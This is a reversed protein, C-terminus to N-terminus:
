RLRSSRELHEIRGGEYKIPEKGRWELQLTMREIHGLLSMPTARLQPDRISLDVNLNQISTDRGIRILPRSDITATQVNRLNLGEIIGNVSFLPMDGEEGPDWSYREAAAYVAPRLERWHPHPASDVNVNSFTISGFNGLSPAGMHSLVAMRERITGTVNQILVRDLRQNSSLLRFGHHSDMLIVNSITVDTIPGQGVYPGMENNVTIDDVKWGWDNALLAISDDWTRLKVSDVTLYQIPGGFHLGDDNNRGHEELWNRQDALSVQSPFPPMRTDVVVDRINILKANAVWVAFGKTNWLIVDELSLYNVGFFQLGSRFTGDATQNRRFPSKEPGEAQQGNRNGNFFCGRIQIHEDVIADRSRHANRIIAGPSSDRLYFGGGATCEITTNGYVSLGTVLAPGDIVLHVAKGGAARNLLQQLIATDDTGGGTLLNSNLAAGAESAVLIASIPRAAHELTSKPQNDACATSSCLAAGITLAVSLSLHKAAEIKLAYSM